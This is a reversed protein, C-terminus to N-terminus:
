TRLAGLLGKRLWLLQMRLWDLLRKGGALEEATVIYQEKWGLPQKRESLKGPSEM